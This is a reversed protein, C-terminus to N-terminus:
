QSAPLLCPIPSTISSSLSLLSLLSFPSLCISPPWTLFLTFSVAFSVSLCASILSFSRRHSCLHVCLCCFRNTVEKKNAHKDEVEIGEDRGWCTRKDERERKEGETKGEGVGGWKQAKEEKEQEDRWYM